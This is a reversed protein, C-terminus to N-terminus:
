SPNELFDVVAFHGKERAWDLPKRGWADTSNVDAGATWLFKVVELDGKLAANTLPTQGGIDNFNVDAGALKLYRVMELNGHSAAWHLPTEGWRNITSDVRVGATVLWQVMELCGHQVALSLPTQGWKDSSKVSAVARMLWKVAEWHDHAAAWNLLTSMGVICFQRCFTISGLSIVVVIVIVGTVKQGILILVVGIFVFGTVLIIVCASLLMLAWRYGNANEDQKDKKHSREGDPKRQSHQNTTDGIEEDPKGPQNTAIFQVHITLILSTIFFTLGYSLLARSLDCNENCPVAGNPAITFIVVFTSGGAFVAM